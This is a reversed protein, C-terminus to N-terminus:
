KPDTMFRVGLIIIRLAFCSASTAANRAYAYGDNRLVSCFPTCCCTSAELAQSDSGLLKIQKLVSHHPHLVGSSTSNRQMQIMTIAGTLKVTAWHFFCYDSFLCNARKAVQRHPAEGTSELLALLRTVSSFVRSHCTHDM